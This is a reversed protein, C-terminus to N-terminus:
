PMVWSRVKSLPAVVPVILGPSVFLTSAPTMVASVSAYQETAPWRERPMTRLTFTVPADECCTAEPSWVLWLWAAVPLTGVRMVTAFPLISM